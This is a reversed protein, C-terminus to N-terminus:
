DRYLWSLVRNIWRVNCRFWRYVSVPKGGFGLIFERFRNRKFPLGVDM